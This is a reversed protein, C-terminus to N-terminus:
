KLRGINWLKYTSGMCITDTCVHPASRRGQCQYGEAKRMTVLTRTRVMQVSGRSDVERCDFRIKFCPQAVIYQNWYITSYQNVIGHQINFLLALTRDEIPHKCGLVKSATQFGQKKQILVLWRPIQSQNSQYDCPFFADFWNKIGCNISVVMDPLIHIFHQVLYPPRLWNHFCFNFEVRKKGTLSYYSESVASSLSSFSSFYSFIALIM